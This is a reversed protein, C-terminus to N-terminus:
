LTTMAAREALVSGQEVCDNMAVGHFANGSLILGPHESEVRAEIAAIRALHGLFYQPIARPWRIVKTMVPEGRLQHVLRLEAVVARVIEADTWDLMERRHWGGCLARWLLHGDPARGPFISSCWQVGLVDRRTRQPAIYGFGDMPGGPVDEARFGVAVVAIRNYEIANLQNALTPDVDALLRAQEYAPMTLILTDANWSGNNEGIARWGTPTREIRQLSVSKQIVDGLSASLADVMVQLGGPFSWMRTPGPAPEGRATADLRRQTAARSVGRIVSGHAAEFGVLRPFCARVSLLEPDGGHIGTVLADAFVDAAQRGARRTAFAAISEDEDSERRPQRPELAFRIKGGLTLLPSGIFSMLSGPLKQLRGKLYVYRNKRSGESAAVLQEGLGLDHCLQLTSPKNDLFGNPGAEIRFGDQVDTRINGGVRDSRELLTISQEPHRQRLRFATALGTIGGGVILISM